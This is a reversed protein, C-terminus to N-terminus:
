HAHADHDHEQEVSNVPLVARSSLDVAFDHTALYQGSPLAILLQLCRHRECAEVAGGASAGGPDSLSRWVGAVVRVQEAAILDAGTLRRFQEVFAPAPDAALTLQTAIASEAATPPLQLGRVERSRLVSGAALDVLAQHLRDAAYDYLSVTARRGDGRDDLPPLDAALVEGGPNGLVDAAGSPMSEQALHIAYGREAVSLPADPPGLSPARRPLSGDGVARFEVDTRPGASDPGASSPLLPLAAVATGGLAIVLPVALLALRTRSTTARM